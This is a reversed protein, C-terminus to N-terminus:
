PKNSRVKICVMGDCIDQISWLVVALIVVIRVACICSEVLVGVLCHIKCSVREYAM